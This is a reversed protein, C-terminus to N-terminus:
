LFCCGLILGVIELLFWCMSSLISFFVSLSDAMCALLHGSVSEVINGRAVVVGFSMDTGGVAM